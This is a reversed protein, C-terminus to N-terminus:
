LLESLPEDGYKPDGFTDRKVGLAQAIALFAQHIPRAGHKSGSPTLYRGKRLSGAQDAIIVMAHNGAGDHHKGGGSNVWVMITEDSLTTDGVSVTDLHAYLRALQQAKYDIVTAYAQDARALDYGSGIHAVQEHADGDFGLFGWGHNHADFGMVSLHAVHTLGFGLAHKIVDIHGEITDRALGESEKPARPLERGKLKSQREGLQREMERYSGLMQEVKAREPSALSARVARVDEMMGDLLSREQELAQNADEGAGFLRQYAQLPSGIAPFPRKYGDASTCLPPRGPRTSVGLAISSFADEEGLEQAVLRDLSVGGPSFGDGSIASLTAWGSGHLSRDHPNSLPRIVTLRDSLPEFASLVGPVVWETESQVETDLTPSNRSSNTGFGGQHAWGNGDTFVVLNKRGAMAEEGRAERVLRSVLPALLTAGAGLSLGKIVTRRKM